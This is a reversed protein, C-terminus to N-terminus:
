VAKDMRKFCYVVIHLVMLHLDEVQEIASLGINIHIDCLGGLIGGDFGTLGVIRGGNARAYEVARIINASNGSASIALLVDGEELQNKLQEVYVHDYGIDNGYATIYSVNECLSIIKFRDSEKRVANKGFDCTFHNATAASGGNGIVFIRKKNRNAKRFVELLEEIHEIEIARVGEAIEDIYGSIWEKM